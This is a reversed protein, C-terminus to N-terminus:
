VAALERFVLSPSTKRASGPARSRHSEISYDVDSAALEAYTLRVITRGLMRRVLVLARRLLMRRIDTGFSLRRSEGEVRMIPSSLVVFLDWLASKSINLRYRGSWRAALERELRELTAPDRLEREVASLKKSISRYLASCWSASHRQRDAASADSLAPVLDVSADLSAFDIKVPEDPLSGARGWAQAISGAILRTVPRYDPFADVTSGTVKDYYRSLKTTLQRLLASKGTGPEGLLFVMDLDSIPRVATFRAYSGAIYEM